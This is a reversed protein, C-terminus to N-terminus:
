YIYERCHIQEAQVVRYLIFLISKFNNKAFIAKFQQVHLPLVSTTNPTCNYYFTESLYQSLTAATYLNLTSPKPLLQTLYYHDGLKEEYQM